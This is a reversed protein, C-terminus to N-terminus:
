RATWSISKESESDCARVKQGVLSPTIGPVHGERPWLEMHVTPIQGGLVLSPLTPPATSAGWWTPQWLVKGVMVSTICLAGIGAGDQSDAQSGSEQSHFTLYARM